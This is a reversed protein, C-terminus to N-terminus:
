AIEVRGGPHHGIVTPARQGDPTILALVRPHSACYERALSIGGIFFATSLADATAARDAIVTSSLIGSTPWGSRPDIVHGYRVGNVDVFQEGAGSTGLAADGLWVEALRRDTSPSIVDIWWGEGRRGLALLSSRGASLLAHRVGGARMDAGARDLAFGKGIAGLNLEVGKRTFRVTLSNEDLRIADLGVSMRATDVAERSPFLGERQLFGWIRSLPTTTIDFTGGTARYIDVCECLLDFLVHDVPVPEAAARRNIEAIASTNRFITLQDEIRDIHDLAARAVPLDRADESAITVEFSCAMARRSLRIWANRSASVQPSLGSLFARRSWRRLPPSEFSQNPTAAIM